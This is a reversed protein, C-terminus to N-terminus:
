LLYQQHLLHLRVSRVLSFLPYNGSTVQLFAAPFFPGPEEKEQTAVVRQQNEQLYEHLSVEAIEASETLPLSAQAMTASALFMGVLFWLYKM